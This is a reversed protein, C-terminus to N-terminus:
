THGPPTVGPGLDSLIRLAVSRTRRDRDHLAQTALTQHAARSVEPDSDQALRALTPPWAKRCRAISLRVDPDPDLSMASAMERLHDAGLLLPPVLACRLVQIPTV